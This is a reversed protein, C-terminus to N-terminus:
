PTGGGFLVGNGDYLYYAGSKDRYQRTCPPTHVVQQGTALDIPGLPCEVIGDRPLPMADLMVCTGDASCSAGLRQAHEPAVCQAQPVATKLPQPCEVHGEAM